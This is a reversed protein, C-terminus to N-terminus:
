VPRDPKLDHRELMLGPGEPRLNAKKPKEPSKPRLQARELRLDAWETILDPRLDAREAKM